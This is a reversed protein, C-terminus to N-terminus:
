ASNLLEIFRRIIEVDNLLNFRAVTEPDQKELTSVPSLDKLDCKILEQMGKNAPDFFLCVAKNEMNRINMTM